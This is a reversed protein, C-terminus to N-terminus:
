RTVRRPEAQNHEKLILELVAEQAGFPYRSIRRLHVGPRREAYQVREAYTLKPLAGDVFVRRIGEFAAIVVEDSLVVLSSDRVELLEGTITRRPAGDISELELRVRHGRIDVSSAIDDQTPGHRFMCGACVCCALAVVAIRIM